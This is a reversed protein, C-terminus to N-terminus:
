DRDYSNMEEDLIDRDRDVTITARLGNPFLMTLFGGKRLQDVEEGTLEIDIYM